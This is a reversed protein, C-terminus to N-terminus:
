SVAKKMLLRFTEKGKPTILTQVDAKGNREWEKMKFLDGVYKAYPKLKKKLDRYLFGKELLWNVFQREGIELEKATDRINTLLNRDVLADFYEAKPKMVAIQENQKRVTELTAKFLLKTQDDAHSLYTQIFLDEQAVYGGTKRITPLVEEAVWDSFKEAEPKNSRFVLKYVGSENIVTVHRIQSGDSIGVSAKQSDKLRSVADRSNSIELVDCVDKAVFWVENNMLVTRVEAKGYSFVKQLQNMRDRRLLFLVGILLMRENILTRLSESRPSIENTGNYVL